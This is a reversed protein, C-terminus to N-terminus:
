DWQLTNVLHEIDARLFKNVPMLSDANPTAFFYLAGRLFHKVSDTAFFQNATATNGKLSFYLGGTGNATSFREPQIKSAMQTHQKYAMNNADNVLSDFNNRGVEKYSLHLKANFQPFSVNIWYPNEPQQEFFLTDQEIQAYVPYEFKYHFGARNFQQYKKEPLEIKFYGRPKSVYESNCSILLFFAIPLFYFTIAKKTLPPPNKM